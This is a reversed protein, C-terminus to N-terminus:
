LAARRAGIVVEDQFAGSASSALEAPLSRKDTVTRAEEPGPAPQAALTLVGAPTARILFPAAGILVHLGEAVSYTGSLATSQYGSVSKYDFAIQQHTVTALTLLATGLDEVPINILYTDPSAALALRAMGAVGVM